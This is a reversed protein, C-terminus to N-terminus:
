SSSRAAKLVRMIQDESIVIGFHEKLEVSIESYIEMLGQNKKTLKQNFMTVIIHNREWIELEKKEQRIRSLKEVGYYIETIVVFNESM